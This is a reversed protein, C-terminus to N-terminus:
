FVLLPSYLLQPAPHFRTHGRTRVHRVCVELCPLRFLEPVLKSLMMIHPVHSCIVDDHGIAAIHVLKHLVRNMASPVPIYPPPSVIVTVGAEALTIVRQKSIGVVYHPIRPVRLLLFPHKLTMVRPHPTQKDGVELRLYLSHSLFQATHHRVLLHLARKLSHLFVPRGALVVLRALHFIDLRLCLAHSHRLVAHRRVPVLEVVHIRQATRALHLKVVENRVAESQKVSFETHASVTRIRCAEIHRTLHRIRCVHHADYRAIFVVESVTQRSLVIHLALRAPQQSALRAPERHRALTCQVVRHQQEASRLDQLKVQRPSGSMQQVTQLQAVALHHSSQVDAHLPPCLRRRSCPPKHRLSASLQPLHVQVPLSHRSAVALVRCRQVERRVRQQPAEVRATRIHLAHSHGLTRRYLVEHQRSRQRSQTQFIQRFQFLLSQGDLTRGIHRLENNVATRAYVPLCQKFATRVDFIQTHRADVHFTVAVQQSRQHPRAAHVLFAAVHVGASQHSCVAQRFILPVLLILSQLLVKRLQVDYLRFIRHQLAVLTHSIVCIERVQIVARAILVAVVVLWAAMHSRYQLVAVSHQRLHCLLRGRPVHVYRIDIGHHVIKVALHSVQLKVILVAGLIGVSGRGFKVAALTVQHHVLREEPALTDIVEQVALVVAAVTRLILVVHWSHWVHVYQRKIVDLRHLATVSFAPFHHTAPVGYCIGHTRVARIRHAHHIHRLVLTDTPRTHWARVKHAACKGVHVAIHHLADHHWRQTVSKLSAHIEDAIHRLSSLSQVERYQVCGLKVLNYQGVAVLYLIHLRFPKGVILMQASYHATRYHAALQTGAYRAAAGSCAHCPRVEMIVAHLSTHLLNVSQHVEANRVKCVRLIAPPVHLLLTACTRM